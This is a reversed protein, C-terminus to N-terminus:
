VPFYFLRWYRRQVCVDGVVTPPTKRYRECSGLLNPTSQCGIPGTASMRGKMSLSFPQSAPPRHMILLLRDDSLIQAPRRWQLDEHSRPIRFSRRAAECRNEHGVYGAIGRQHPGVFIGRHTRELRVLGREQRHDGRMASVHDIEGAVADEGLERADDARDLRGDRHLRHDGVAVGAHRDFPPHLEADTDVLTVDDM